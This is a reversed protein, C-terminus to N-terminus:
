TLIKEAEQQRENAKETKYNYQFVVENDFEFKEVQCEALYITDEYEFEHM